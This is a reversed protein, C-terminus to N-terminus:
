RDLAQNPRSDKKEVHLLCHLTDLIPQVSTILNGISKQNGYMMNNFGTTSCYTYKEQCNEEEIDRDTYLNWLFASEPQIQYKQLLVPLFKNTFGKYIGAEFYRIFLKDVCFVPLILLAGQSVNKSSGIGFFQWKLKLYQLNKPHETSPILGLSKMKFEMESVLGACGRWNHIEKVGQALSPPKQHQYDHDMTNITFFHYISIKFQDLNQIKDFITNHSYERSAPRSTQCSSLGTYVMSNFLFM